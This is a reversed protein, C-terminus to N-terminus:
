LADSPIRKLVDHLRQLAREVEPDDLSRPSHAAVNRVRRVRDLEAALEESIIGRNVLTRIGDRVSVNRETLHRARAILSEELKAWEVLFQGVRGSSAQQTQVRKIVEKCLEEVRDKPPFLATKPISKFGANWFRSARPIAFKAILRNRFDLETKTDFSTTVDPTGAM